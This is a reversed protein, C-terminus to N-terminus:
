SNDQAILRKLAHEMDEPNESGIKLKKGGVLKIRIFKKGTINMVVTNAFHNRRYGCEFRELFSQKTLLEVSEIQTKPILEWKWVSPFFKYHIGEGNIKIQLKSYLLIVAVPIAAFLTSLLFMVFSEQDIKENFTLLVPLLIILVLVAWLWRVNAFRQEEHYHFHAM